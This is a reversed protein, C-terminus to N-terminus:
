AKGFLADKVSRWVGNKRPLPAPAERADACAADCSAAIEALTNMVMLRPRLRCGIIEDIRAIVKMSSLSHGGLDFFNDDRSVQEVGLIEQWIAAIRHETQSQPPVHT